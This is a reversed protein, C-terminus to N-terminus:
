VPWLGTIRGQPEIEGALLRAAASAVHSSAGFCLVAASDEPIWDLVPWGLVLVVAPQFRRAFSALNDVFEEPPAGRCSFAIVVDENGSVHFGFSEQGTYRTADIVQPGTQVEPYMEGDEGMAFGTVVDTRRWHPFHRCLVDVFSDLDHKKLSPGAPCEVPVVVYHGDPTVTAAEPDGGQVAISREAVDRYVGPVSPYADFQIVKGRRARPRATASQEAVRRRLAIVRDYSEDLIALFNKLTENGEAAEAIKENIRGRDVVKELTRIITEMVNLSVLPENSGEVEVAEPVPKTHLMM